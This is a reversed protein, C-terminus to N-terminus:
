TTSTKFCRFTLLDRLTWKPDTISCERAPTNKCKVGREDDYDKMGLLVMINVIKMQTLLTMIGPNQVEKEM